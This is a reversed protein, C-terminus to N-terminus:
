PVVGIFTINQDVFGPPFPGGLHLIPGSNPEKYYRMAEATGLANHTVDLYQVIRSDPDPSPIFWYRQYNSQTKEVEEIHVPSFETDNVLHTIRNVVDTESSGPEAVPPPLFILYAMTEANDCTFCWPGSDAFDSCTSPNYRPAPSRVTRAVCVCCEDPHVAHGSTWGGFNRWTECFWPDNLSIYSSVNIVQRSGFGDAKTYYYACRDNFPVTVAATLSHGTVVVINADRRFTRTRYLFAQTLNFPNDNYFVHTYGILTGKIVTDTTTSTPIEARDDFDSTYMMDPIHRAESEEHSTWTGVYMCDEFDNTNEVTSRPRTDRYYKVYKLENGAFFVHMTADCRGPVEGLPGTLRMDHSVLYGLEPHPFKIMRQYTGPYYIPSKSVLYLNASGTCIPELVLADLDDFLWDAPGSQHRFTDCQSQTLRDIKAMIAPFRDEYGQKHALDAFREKLSAAGNPPPDAEALSGISLNMGFHSSYQVDNQITVCTNHAESGRENFAWGLVSSYPASQYFLDMDEKAALQIVLGARIWSDMAAGPFAEGTPWAGFLDLADIGAQDDLGELKERFKPDRTINHEPLPRAIVGRTSGIEVLWLRDDSAVVIGHTRFWRWDFRIQVGEARVDKQYKTPEAEEEGAPLRIRPEAKDYISRSIQKGFGMLFQVVKRMMGSYMTPKLKLYQSFKSNSEVPPGLEQEFAQFPKVALRASPAQGSLGHLEETRETPWFAAIKAQNTEEDKYITGGLVVGSVFDPVQPIIGQEVLGGPAVVDGVVIVAKRVSGAVIAYCYADDALVWHDMGVDLGGIKLRGLLGRLVQKARPIYTQAREIDGEM